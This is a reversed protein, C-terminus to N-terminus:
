NSPQYTYPSTSIQGTTGGVPNGGGDLTGGITVTGCTGNFGAGISYDGINGKTATVSTVGNTITVTGCSGQYGGGIGAGGNGGTANVTGGTISITGCSSKRGGGIGAGSNGGTANVTGGTISITGCSGSSSGGGIGASNSGGNATITGGAIVINGCAINYGGGIGCGYGNSSATLSGSGQITVTKNQPVHIGPYEEYFGKVTNTGSLIITADGLCTIGAWGYNLDNVGNITVGDLTVTAGDAISIKYNGALTGTLVDGDKLETNETLKSLDVINAAPAADSTAKVGKVKLRGNYHLTVTESGDGKLGGIPLAGFNTGDTSATWKDADKVGDKMSVTYTAGSGGSSTYTVEISKVYLAKAAASPKAVRVVIAGSASGTFTYDTATSSLSQADGGFANGGVTVGVTANVGSATSANVVVQTITGSIGSTSLEIYGVTAKSTGYHIGKTNEFTSETGDSTVTWVVNDDATAGGNAYTDTFELSSTSQAWAGTAATMLLALLLLLKNKVQPRFKEREAFSLGAQSQERKISIKQM